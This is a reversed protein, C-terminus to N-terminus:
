LCTQDKQMKLMAEAAHYKRHCNSCLVVCKSAEEKLKSLSFVKRGINFEKKTPDLHHFDLCRIDSENCLVCKFNGKYEDYLKKFKLYRERGYTKLCDKCINRRYKDCSYSISNQETLEVGCCRCVCEKEFSCINLQNFWNPAKQPWSLYTCFTTVGIGLAKAAEKCSSFYENTQEIYVSKFHVRSTM